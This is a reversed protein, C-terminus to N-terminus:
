LRSWDAGVRYHTLTTSPEFGDSHAFYPHLEFASYCDGFNYIPNRSGGGTSSTFFFSSLSIYVFIYVIFEYGIFSHSLLRKYCIPIPLPRKFRPVLNSEQRSSVCFPDTALNTSPMPRKFRYLLLEWRPNSEWWIWM